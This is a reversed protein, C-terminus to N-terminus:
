KNKNKILGNKDYTAKYQKQPDSFNTCKQSKCGCFIIISTLILVQNIRIKM